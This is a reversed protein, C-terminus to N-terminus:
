SSLINQPLAAKRDSAIFLGLAKKTLHYHKFPCLQQRNQANEKFNFYFPM